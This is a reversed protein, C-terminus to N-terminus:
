GDIGTCTCMSSHVAQCEERLTGFIIIDVLSNDVLHQKGKRNWSIELVM